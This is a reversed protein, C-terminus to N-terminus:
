MPVSNGHASELFSAPASSFGSRHAIQAPDGHTVRRPLPVPLRLCFRDHCVLRVVSRTPLTAKTIKGASDVPWVSLLRVRAFSRFAAGNQAFREGPLKRPPIKGSLRFPPWPRPFLHAPFYTPTSAVEASDARNEGRRLRGASRLLFRDHRVVEGARPTPLTAQTKKGGSDVAWVSFQRVESRLEAKPSHEGIQVPHRKKRESLVFVLRPSCSPRRRKKSLTPDTKAESSDVGDLPFRLCRLPRQASPANRYCRCQTEGGSSVRAPPCCAVTAFLSLPTSARVSNGGM